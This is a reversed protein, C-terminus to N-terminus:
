TIRAYDPVKFFFAARFPRFCRKERAVALSRIM